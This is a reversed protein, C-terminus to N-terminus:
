FLGMWIAKKMGFRYVERLLGSLRGGGTLVHPSMVGDNAEDM